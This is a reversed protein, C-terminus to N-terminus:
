ASAPALVDPWATETKVEKLLQRACTECKGCGTGVQLEGRLKSMSDCGNEVAERIHRDTVSNCICVYMARAEHNGNPNVNIILVIQM